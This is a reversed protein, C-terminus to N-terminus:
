IGPTNLLTTKRQSDLGGLLVNEVTDKCDGIKEVRETHSQMGESQRLRKPKVWLFCGDRIATYMYIYIYIYIYTYLSHSFSLYLVIDLKNLSACWLRHKNKRLTIYIIVALVPCREEIVHYAHMTTARLSKWVARLKHAYPAYNNFPVM